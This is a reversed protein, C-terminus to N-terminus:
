ELMVYGDAKFWDYRCVNFPKAPISMLAKQDEGFLDAIVEGKKYHKESAKIHHADLLERNFIHIDAYRPVPVFLNRRNYKVKSEVHGKEYGAYPNCFRIQFGYHARFKAFLQCERVAEGIRRGVGTANDFILLGPVGGIYSFIDQLGECVCESTEGGFVQVFSDNSYPFSVTLYKKRVCVDNEYFDAEGFDVQAVGPDWILEQNAKEKKQTKLKRMYRRVTSYSGTYAHEKRLRDYIRNATHHQKEWHNGDAALWEAIVPKFPDLISEKSESVPPEPSFDDMKLYKSVTKRDAGTEKSIESISYGCKHLDRIHNIQSMTFM